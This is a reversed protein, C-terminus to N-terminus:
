GKVYQCPLLTRPRRELQAAQLSRKERPADSPPLPNRLSQPHPVNGKSLPCLGRAQVGAPPASHPAPCWRGPEYSPSSMSLCPQGVGGFPRPGQGGDWLHSSYPRNWAPSSKCSSLLSAKVVPPTRHPMLCLWPLVPLETQRTDQTLILSSLYNLVLEWFGNVM